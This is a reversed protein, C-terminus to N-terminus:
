MLCANSIEKNGVQGQFGKKSAMFSYIRLLYFMNSLGDYMIHINGPLILHHASKLSSARGYFNICCDGPKLTM